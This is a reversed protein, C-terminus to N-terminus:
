KVIEKVSNSTDGIVWTMDVYIDNGKEDSGSGSQLYGQYAKEKM